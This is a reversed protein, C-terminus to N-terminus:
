KLNTKYCFKVSQGFKYFFIDIHIIDFLYITLIYRMIFRITSIECISIYKM